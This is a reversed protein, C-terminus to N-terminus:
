RGIKNAAPGASLGGVLGGIALIGVALGWTGSSMPLCAPLGSDNYQSMDCGRIVSEPANPAASNFGAAFAALAATVGCLWIYPTFKIDKSDCTTVDSNIDGKKLAM